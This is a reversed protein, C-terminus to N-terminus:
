YNTNQYVAKGNVIAVTKSKEEFGDDTSVRSKLNFTHDDVQDNCDNDPLNYKFEFPFKEIRGKTVDDKITECMLSKGKMDELCVEGEFNNDFPNLAGLTKKSLLIDSIHADVYHIEYGNLDIFDNILDLTGHMEVVWLKPTCGDAVPTFSEVDEYLWNKLGNGNAAVTTVMVIILAVVIMIIIPLPIPLPVVGKKQYKNKLM